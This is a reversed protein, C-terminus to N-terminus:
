ARSVSKTCDTRCTLPQGMVRVHLQQADWTARKFFSSPRLSASLPPLGAVAMPRGAADLLPARDTPLPQLPLGLEGSYGLFPHHPTLPIEESLTM